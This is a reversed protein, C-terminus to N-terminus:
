RLINKIEEPLEFSLEIIGTYVGDRYWPGQYIFKKKGEKEVTYINEQQKVLM